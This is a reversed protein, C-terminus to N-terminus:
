RLIHANHGFFLLFSTNNEEIKNGHIKKNRYIYYKLHKDTWNDEKPYPTLTLMGKM